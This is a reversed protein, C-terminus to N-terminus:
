RFLYIREVFWYAGLVAVIASCIPIWRPAFQPLRKLKWLIPLVIAAVAIQGIEVGFNFSVLPVAIGTTGSSVGMERLAGAFGFGHVLGFALTVLWRGRVNKGRLINELGVYVISAAIAPEVIRPSIQVISMAALALTLSHALTFCTVIKAVAWFSDCVLLLGFLFLLHDYGTLIHEIGARFFDTFTRRPPEATDLDIEALDERASLLLEGLSNGRQDDLTLYQRHGPALRRILASHIKLRGAPTGPFSLTIELDNNEALRIAPTRPAIKKDDLFIELAETALTQLKSQAAALEPGSIKGDSNADLSLLPEVDTRALALTAEIHDRHMKLKLTSLGPDHAQASIFTFLPLLIVLGRWM